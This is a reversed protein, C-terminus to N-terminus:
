SAEAVIQEFYRVQDLLGVIQELPSRDEPAREWQAFKVDATSLLRDKEAKALSGLRALKDADKKSKAEALAERTEMMEMLFAPDMKARERDNAGAKLGFLGLLYEARRQPDRLTRVADNLMTTHQLSHAREKPNARAFRDPHLRRSKERLIESLKELDVHYSRPLGLYEFYDRARPPQLKGCRPCVDTADIAAECSWCSM